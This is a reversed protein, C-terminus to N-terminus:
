KSEENEKSKEVKSILDHLGKSGGMIALATFARDVGVNLHTAGITGLVGYHVYSVAIISLSFSMGQTLVTLDGRANDADKRAEASKDADKGADDAFGSNGNQTSDPNKMVDLAKRKRTEAFKNSMPLADVVGIILEVLREIGQALVYLVAFTSVTAVSKYKVDSQNAWWALLCGVIVLAVAVGVYSQRTNDKKGGDGARETGMSEGPDSMMSSGEIPAISATPHALSADCTGRSEHPPTLGAVINSSVIVTATLGPEM